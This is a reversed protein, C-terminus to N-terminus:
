KFGLQLETEFQFPLKNHKKINELKSLPQINTYHLAELLENKDELNYYSLPVYHDLHWDVGYNNWSMGPYLPFYNEIYLKFEQISCGLDKVASGNKFNNQLALWLRHRLQSSLRYTINTKRKNYCYERFFKKGKESGNFAIRKSRIKDQGKESYYYKKNRRSSSVKFAETSRYKRIYDKYRNSELYKKVAIQKAESKNYELRKQIGRDSKRWRYGAAILKDRNPIYEKLKRCNKCVYRLGDKSQRYVGFLKKDLELNCSSCKKVQNM